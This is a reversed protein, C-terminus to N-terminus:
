LTAPSAVCTSEWACVTVEVMASFALGAGGADLLVVLSAPVVLVPLVVLVPPDVSALVPSATDFAAGAAIARM